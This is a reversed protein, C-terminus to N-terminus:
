PPVRFRPAAPRETCSELPQGTVRALSDIVEGAQVGLLSAVYDDEFLTAYVSSTSSLRNKQFAAGSLVGSPGYGRFFWAFFSEAGGEDEEELDDRRDIREQESSIDADEYDGADIEDPRRLVNARIASSCRLM